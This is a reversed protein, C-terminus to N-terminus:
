IRCDINAQLSIMGTRKITPTDHWIQIPTDKLALRLPAQDIDIVRPGPPSPFKGLRRTSKMKM